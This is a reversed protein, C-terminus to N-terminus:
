QQTYFRRNIRDIQNYTKDICIQGLNDKIRFHCKQIYDEDEDEFFYYRAQCLLKRKLSKSFPLSSVDYLQYENLFIQMSKPKEWWAARLIMEKRVIDKSNYEGLKADVQGMIKYNGNVYDMWRFTFENSITIYSFLYRLDIGAIQASLLDNETSADKFRLLCVETTLTNRTSTNNQHVTISQDDKSVYKGVIHNVMDFTPTIFRDDSPFNVYNPKNTVLPANNSLYRSM